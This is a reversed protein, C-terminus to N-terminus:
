LMRIPLHQTSDTSSIAFNELLEDKVM